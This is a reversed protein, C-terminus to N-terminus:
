VYYAFGSAVMILSALVCGLTYGAKGAIAAGGHARFM